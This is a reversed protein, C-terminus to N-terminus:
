LSPGMTQEWPGEKPLFPFGQCLRRPSSLRRWQWPSWAPCGLHPHCPQPVSFSCSVGELRLLQLVWRQVWPQAGRGRRASHLGAMAFASISGRAVACSAPKHASASRFAKELVAAGRPYGMRRPGEKLERFPTLPPALSPTAPHSQERGRGSANEASKEWSATRVGSVQETHASGRDEATHPLHPKPVRAGLSCSGEGAGGGWHPCQTPPTSSRLGM